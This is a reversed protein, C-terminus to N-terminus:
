DEFFFLKSLKKNLAQAYIPKHSDRPQCHNNEVVSLWQRRIKLGLDALRGVLVEQTIGAKVRAEKIRNKSQM